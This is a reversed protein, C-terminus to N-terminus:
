AAGLQPHTKEPDLYSKTTHFAQAGVFYFIEGESEDRGMKDIFVQKISNVYEKRESEEIPFSLSEVEIGLKEKLNKRIMSGGYLHAISNVVILAVAENAEMEERISECHLQTGKSPECKVNMGEFLQCRIAEIDRSIAKVNSLNKLSLIEGNPSTRETQEFASKWKEDSDRLNDLIEHYTEFILSLNTFHQLVLEKSPTGQLAKMVPPFSKHLDAHAKNYAQHASSLQTPASAPAPTAM